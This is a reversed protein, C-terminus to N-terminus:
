ISIAVEIKELSSLEAGSSVDLLVVNVTKQPAEEILMITITTPELEKPNDKMTRLEVEGTADEFGYSASVPQSICKGRAQIEVRVKPPELSFLSGQKGSIQVSFFRTTLKPTGPTITWQIGTPPGSTVKALPVLSVVPIILEQPSLGGHFYARTGGKVKFCAFNWPTAIDYESEVGFSSLSARLYSPEHTGGIGIWARRHLDVTEGGPTEIKMDDSIEDTFLHGHDSVLIISKVGLDTLVRVGRRLDVLVGDMQRRAQTINDQECLEDIEQSTILVLQANEIGQRVKKAPKPLLAELKTDYVTMDTHDKLFAIRDKRGKIVKGSIDMALKGGGISVIKGDCAKPLLSSMGIETITPITALAPEIEISFDDRLVECLERAMEYRLADVWVYAVKQTDELRPKVQKDFIDRQRAIGKVPHKTNAMRTIFHKTMESGVEMYRQRAKVILKELCDHGENPDFNHWRGEMHRHHSDLLCWPADGGTYAEILSPINALPKKLAKAVRDAELLVEAASAILAWHAQIAPLCDSWFRSLRYQALTLLKTNASSLLMNEVHKLLLHELSLFTELNTIKDPDLDLLGLACDEEVKGAANIYSERHDRLQRWTKALRLCSDVGSPTSAVKISRLASPVSTDLGQVLDTLLIHKALKARLDDLTVTALFEIDFSVTLLNKLEGQAAKKEIENDYKENSLFALAVEQPNGSGFILSLVGSSIESGKQALANLDALTLKDAEVQKEIDYATEEGLVTKLINRAVISLRTNRQPPQEGPQIVVGAVELEILAHYTNAQEEPVYIVLQPPEEGNLLHDIDNRLQLFSGHYQVIITDPLSFMEIADSYSGNPDYWVVIGYDDVQKAILSFLYETVVGINM